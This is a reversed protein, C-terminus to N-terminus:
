VKQGLCSTVNLPGKINFFISEVKEAASISVETMEIKVAGVALATAGTIADVDVIELVWALGLTAIVVEALENDDLKSLHATPRPVVPKVSFTILVVLPLAVRVKEPVAVQPPVM